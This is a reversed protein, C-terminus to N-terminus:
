LVKELLIEFILNTNPPIPGGPTGREGYGLKSPIHVLWRDGPKMLQLAESFGPVVVGVPFIEPGGREFASDFAPGGTALRGEYYLEADQQETPPVGDAPGSALVVYELGSATKKVEPLSSNWPAHKAWADRSIDPPNTFGKLEIEFVIDANPPIPGGPTGMAGYGLASPIYVLWSDGPRMLQLAESFGPVVMGVPFKATEGRKFSSDFVTGDANLRGEYHLEAMSREGPKEGAEPGSALVVYELGTGTKKVDSAASNWPVHKEWAATDVADVSAAGTSAGPAACGALPGVLGALVLAAFTRRIM